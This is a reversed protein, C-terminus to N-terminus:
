ILPCCPLFTIYWNRVQIKKWKGGKCNVLRPHTSTAVIVALVPSVKGEREAKSEYNETRPLVQLAQDTKAHAQETCASGEQLWMEVLSSPLFTSQAM